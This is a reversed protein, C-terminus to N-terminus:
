HTLFTELRRALEKNYTEIYTTFRPEMPHYADEPLSDGAGSGYFGKVLCQLQLNDGNEEFSFTFVLKERARHDCTGGFLKYLYCFWSDETSLVVSRVNLVQMELQPSNRTSLLRAKNGFERQVFQEIRIFITRRRDTPDAKSVELAMRTNKPLDKLRIALTVASMCFTRTTQVQQGRSQMGVFLCPTKMLDYTDFIQVNAQAPNVQMANVMAYFLAHEVSDQHLEFYDRQLAQWAVSASDTDQFRFKLYVSLTNDPNVEISQPQLVQAIGRAELWQQYTTNLRNKFFDARMANVEFQQAWGVRCVLMFAGCLLYIQKQMNSLINLVRDSIVANLSLLIKCNPKRGCFFQQYPSRM